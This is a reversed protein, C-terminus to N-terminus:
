SNFNNGRSQFLYLAFRTPEREGMDHGLWTVVKVFVEVHCFSFAERISAISNSPVTDRLGPNQPRPGTKDRSQKPTDVYPM